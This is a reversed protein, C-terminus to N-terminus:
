LGAKVTFLYIIPFTSSKKIFEAMPCDTEPERGSVNYFHATGGGRFAVYHLGHRHAYLIIGAPSAGAAKAAAKKGLTVRYEIGHARLWRAVGWPGTGFRGGLIASRQLSNKVDKWEAPAGLLRMLNFCAIAACGCYAVNRKAYPEDACLPQAVIFGDKSFAESFM